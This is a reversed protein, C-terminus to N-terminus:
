AELCWSDSAFSGSQDRSNALSVPHHYDQSTPRAGSLTSRFEHASRPRVPSAAALEHSRPAHMDHLQMVIQGLQQLQSDSLITLLSKEHYENYLDLISRVEGPPLPDEFVKGDLLNRFFRQRHRSLEALRTRLEHRQGQDLRLTEQVGSMRLLLSVSSGSPGRQAFDKPVDPLSNGQGVATAAVAFFLFTIRAALAM